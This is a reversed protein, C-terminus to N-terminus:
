RIRMMNDLTNSTIDDLHMYENWYKEYTKWHMGKQKGPLMQSYPDGGLKKIIEHQKKILRELWHESCSSYTLGCCHRCLFHKSAGYVLAVRQRCNPCEFWKRRGGYNCPTTTITITQTIDEWGGSSNSYRYQLEMSNESIAYRVSGSPKDGAAWSFVGKYGPYLTGIKKLFRIDIRRLEGVTYKRNWRCWTGSNAGGM